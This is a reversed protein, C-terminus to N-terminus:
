PSSGADSHEERGPEFAVLGEPPEVRGHDLPDDLPVERLFGREDRLTVRDWDVCVIRSADRLLAARVRARTDDPPASQFRAIAAESVYREVLGVREHAWYLGTDEDLSGYLHDLHKIEPSDFHLDARRALTREILRLKLVWDLRGALGDWDRAELRRLTDEWLELIGGAQPVSEFGHRAAFRRAEELILLQLEVATVRQGSALPQRTKLTPDHSWRVVAEVPDELLLKPSVGKAEILALFIQMTGARLLSAGQCLTTDFFISHLRALPARTGRREAGCLPEDRSNVLPRTHTTQEGVLTEFFDARQSLQYAVPPRRNEAEVKGQGTFVISSAQFSALALLEDFRRRFLDDWAERSVLLSLHSGFSNSRGDSNNLLVQIREGEPLRANARALASRGIRWMANLSAVHDTASRVEPTCLELHDLDVYACGGNTLFRRGWDQPQLPRHDSERHAGCGGHALVGPIEALLARSAEAGTGEPTGPRGLIFNGLEVDAGCLKPVRRSGGASGTWAHM